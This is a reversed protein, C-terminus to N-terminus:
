INLHTLCNNVSTTEEEGYVAIGNPAYWIKKNM